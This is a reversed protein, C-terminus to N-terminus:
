GLFLKTIREFDNDDKFFVEIAGGKATRKISVPTGLRKAIQETQKNTSAMHKKVQTKEKVGKDRYIVVFQEAQRVSWGFKIISALLEKQKDPNDKLSLITRAHGETISNNALAEKAEDPLQMLRAINSVTPVAKGLKQAIEKYSLSFQDKLREISSAQELPSLDVRQVNEIIAVELEEILKMSRVIAPVAKLGAIKAARWRREGAIIRYEEGQKTVVLPQIIGHIKISDALEALVSEDFLKRPQDPNPEVKSIPLNQVKENDDLLSSDFSKPILADLGKGLGIKSSM